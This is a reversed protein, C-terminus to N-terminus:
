EQFFVDYVKQVKETEGDNGATPDFGMAEALMTFVDEHAYGCAIRGDDGIVEDEEYGRDSLDGSDIEDHTREFESVIYETVDHGDPYGLKACEERVEHVRMLRNVVNQFRGLTITVKKM